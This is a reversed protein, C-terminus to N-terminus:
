YREVTPRDDAGRVGAADLWHEAEDRVADRGLLAESQQLLTCFARDPKREEYPDDSYTRREPDAAIRRLRQLRELAREATLPEDGDADRRDAQWSDDFVGGYLAHRAFDT